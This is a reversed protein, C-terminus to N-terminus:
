RGISKRAGYVGLCFGLVVGILIAEFGHGAPVGIVAGFFAGALTFLLVGIWLWVSRNDLNM